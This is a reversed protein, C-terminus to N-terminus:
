VDLGFAQRLIAAAARRVDFVQTLTRKGADRMTDAARPNDLVSEIAGLLRSPDGAEVAVGFGQEAVFDGYDTTAEVSAVVPLGARLYDITKSPFTPVDTNALTSVIGIDCAAVLSLYENRPIADFLTTNTIGRAIHECVHPVLRGRGILLFFLEPRRTAALNAAALIDEIGRGETIQGGFVAIPRDIPLGRLRRQEDRDMTPALGTPGWLPLVEARQQPRLAYHSRLFDVGRRSMCGVVDFRHLLFTEVRRAFEFVVGRPVLGLSAHHFPFFDTVYVYSHCGQRRLAWLIPFACTVAPSFAIVLDFKRNALRRNVGAVAILSSAVWKTALAVFRGLGNIQWPSFIIVDVGNEQKLACPAAGAPASWQLAIVQVIHGAEALADALENTLYSDERSTGFKTCLLLISRAKDQPPAM